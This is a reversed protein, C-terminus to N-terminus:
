WRKNSDKAVIFQIHKNEMAEHGERKKREIYIYINKKKM